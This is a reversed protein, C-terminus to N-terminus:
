FLFLPRPRYRSRKVVRKFAFDMLDFGASSTLLPHSLSRLLFSRSFLSGVSRLTNQRQCNSTCHSPFSKMVHSALRSYFFFAELNLTPNTDSFNGEIM